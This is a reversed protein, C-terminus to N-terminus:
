WIWYERSAEGLKVTRSDDALIIDLNVLKLLSSFFPVNKQLPNMWMQFWLTHAWLLSVCVHKNTPYMWQQNSDQWLILENYSLYLIM